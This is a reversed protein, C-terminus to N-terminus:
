VKGSSAFAEALVDKGEQMAILDSIDLFLIPKDRAFEVAGATFGGRSVIIGFSARSHHIVGYLDRVVHPGVPAVHAKCQVVGRLGNRTVEIDVGGDASGPTVRADFQHKKLVEGTAREFAYGDLLEWYSRKKRMMAENAEHVAAQATTQYLEHLELVEKYRTYGPRSRIRRYVDLSGGIMPCICTLSFILSVPATVAILIWTESSTWHLQHSAHLYLLSGGSACVWVVFAVLFVWRWMHDEEGGRYKLGDDLPYRGHHVSVDYRSLGYDIPQPPEAYKTTSILAEQQAPTLREYRLNAKLLQVRLKEVESSYQTM